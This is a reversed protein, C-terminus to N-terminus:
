AKGLQLNSYTVGSCITLLVVSTSIRCFNSLLPRKVQKTMSSTLSQPVVSEESLELTQWRNPQMQLTPRNVTGCLRYEDRAVRKRISPICLKQKTPGTAKLSFQPKAGDDSCGDTALLCCSILRQIPDGGDVQRHKLDSTNAPGSHRTMPVRSEGRSCLVLCHGLSDREAAPYM